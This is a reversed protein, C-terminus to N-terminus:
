GPYEEYLHLQHSIGPISVIKDGPAYSKLRVDENSMCYLHGSAEQTGELIKDALEMAVDSPQARGYWKSNIEYPYWGADIQTAIVGAVAEMGVRGMVEAEGQIIAALTEAKMM